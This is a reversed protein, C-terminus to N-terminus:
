IFNIENCWLVNKIEKISDLSLVMWTRDKHTHMTKDPKSAKSDTELNRHTIALATNFKGNM